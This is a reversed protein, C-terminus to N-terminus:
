AAASMGLRLGVAQFDVETEFLGSLGEMALGVRACLVVAAFKTAIGGERRKFRVLSIFIM